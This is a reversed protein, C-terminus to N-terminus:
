IEEEETDTNSTTIIDKKEVPIIEIEPYEFREM